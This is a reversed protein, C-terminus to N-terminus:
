RLHVGPIYFIAFLFVWVTDVFHWYLGTLDIPTHYEASFSGLFTRLLAASLLGIGVIMHFAHLGTMIFYFVFFMQIYGADPGAQEFWFGPVKHDQYHLYYEAFKIALFVLGIVITLFLFLALRNRKGTEASHVALAMTFSSCILVATNVAGMWFEMESSAQTFADRHSIQYVAFATFLGGFLMIETILFVWMGLTSTEEQQEPSHFQERVALAM